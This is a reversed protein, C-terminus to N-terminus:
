EDEEEEEEDGTVESGAYKHLIDILEFVFTRDEPSMMFPNASIELTVCGGSKLRITKSNASTGNPSVATPDGNLDPSKPRSNRRKRTGSGTERIQAMLLPHMPIEAFRVARLFFGIAKRKTDGSVNYEGMAEELMKPTMKTLDHDIIKKYAHNLLAGVHEKRKDPNEVLRQLAVTPEGADNVLGFFRFAMMIQSQVVGSQSRWITRDLKKPLGQQLAEVSSVFTKFPLYAAPATKAQEEAM